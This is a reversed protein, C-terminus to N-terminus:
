AGFNMLEKFTSPQDTVKARELVWDIVQDELVGAEMQRRIQPNSRYTQLAKDPEPFQQVLEEFREMVKAQDVKIDGQKIAENILLSLAVRRRAAETFGEAPPLQSVDKAGMRRGADLQLERVQNDVLSKPLDVPNAALLADLVQKKVRGRVADALERRMNDEVEQRLREIGGEEVGYTKCFEDDLEPLQQEEVSHIKIAFQVPKGALDAGGYNQPFTMDIVKEEGAKVGKLGAEFDALMRGAGLVVPVNEGAGGEFPKGDITGNFDITVRDTDKSEREVAAFTPRQQRLNEIMADVDATTVEAAPRSVEITDLGKLEIQPFIEFIARYKLDGGKETSIPEIRPGTAPNLNQQSVAEAFTSQVVDGVVEQRVQQGFQQRVVNVPVKGPRFGKLRVTRSLSKLREDIAKEVREAPVQVEMRRELAGTTEVSVQM